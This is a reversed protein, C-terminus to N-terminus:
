KLPSAVNNLRQLAAKGALQLRVSNSSACAEFAPRSEQDGWSSLAVIAAIRVPEAPDNALTRFKPLFERRNSDFLCRVALDRVDDKGRATSDLWQIATEIGAPDHRRVLALVAERRVEVDRDQLCEHIKANTRARSADDGPLDLGGLHQVAFSRFRASESPNELVAILIDPLSTYHSRALLNAVENRVADDDSSDRLVATLAAFDVPSSVKQLKASLDPPLREALSAQRNVLAGLRVDKVPPPTYPLAKEAPPNQAAVAPQPATREPTKQTLASHYGVYGAILAVVLVLGVRALKNM